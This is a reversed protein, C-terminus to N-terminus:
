EAVHLLSTARTWTSHIILSDHFHDTIVHWQDMFRYLLLFTIFIINRKVVLIKKGRDSWFQWGRIKKNPFEICGKYKSSIYLYRRLCELISIHGHLPVNDCLNSIYMRLIEFTRITRIRHVNCLNRLRYKM